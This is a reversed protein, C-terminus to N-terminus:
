ILPKLVLKVEWTKGNRSLTVKREAGEAKFGQRISELGLGTVPKGDIKEIIDGDQIGAAAAPSGATVANVRVIKFDPSTSTLNLGSMDFRFPDAFDKNPEVILVKRSYDLVITFRRLIEGGINGAMEPDAFAGKTDESFSTLVNALKFSGFSFDAVRGIKQKSHGGVGLGWLADITSTSSSVNHQEDFPRNVVLCTRNGTDIDFKGEISKGGQTFST